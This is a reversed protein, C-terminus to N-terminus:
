KATEQEKALKFRKERIDEDFLGHLGGASFMIVIALLWVQQNWVFDLVKQVGIWRFQPANILASLRFDETEGYRLWEYTHRVAEIAVVAFALGCIWAYLRSWFVADNLQSQTSPLEETM